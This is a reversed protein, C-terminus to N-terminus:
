NKWLTNVLVATDMTNQTLLPRKRLPIWVMIKQAYRM